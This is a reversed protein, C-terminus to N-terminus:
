FVEEMLGDTAASIIKGNIKNIYVDSLDWLICYM